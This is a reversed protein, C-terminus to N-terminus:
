RPDVVVKGISPPLVPMTQPPVTGTLSDLFAVLSKVQQNSLNKNLQTKGMVKVAEELTRVSGNHFYPATLSIN